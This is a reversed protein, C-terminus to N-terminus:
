ERIWTSAEDCTGQAHSSSKKPRTDYIKKKLCFQILKNQLYPNTHSYRINTPM